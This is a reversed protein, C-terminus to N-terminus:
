FDENRKKNHLIFNEKKEFHIDLEWNFAKAKGNKM